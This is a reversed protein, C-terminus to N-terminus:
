LSRVRDGLTNLFLFSKRISPTTGASCSTRICRRHQKSRRLDVVKTQHWLSFHFMRLTYLRHNSLHILFPKSHARISTSTLNITRLLNTNTINSQHIPRIKPRNKPRILTRSSNSHSNSHSNSNSNSHKRRIYFLSVEHILFLHKPNIWFVKKQKSM